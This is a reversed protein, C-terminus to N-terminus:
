EAFRGAATAIWTRVYDTPCGMACAGHCRCTGRGALTMPMSAASSHGDHRAAFGGCLVAASLLTGVLVVTARRGRNTYPPAEGSCAEEESPLAEVSCRVWDRDAITVAVGNARLGDGIGGVLPGAGEVGEPSDIFVPMSLPIKALVAQADRGVVVQVDGGPLSVVVFEPAIEVVTLLRDPLGNAFCRRGDCCWLTTRWRARLM